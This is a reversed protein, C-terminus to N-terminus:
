PGRPAAYAPWLARWNVTLMLQEAKERCFRIGDDGWSMRLRHRDNQCRGRLDIPPKQSIRGLCEFQLSWQGVIRQSDDRATFLFIARERVGRRAPILV